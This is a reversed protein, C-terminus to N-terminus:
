LAPKPFSHLFLGDQILTFTTLALSVTQISGAKLLQRIKSNENVTERVNKDLGLWLIIYGVNPTSTRMGDALKTRGIQFNFSVIVTM